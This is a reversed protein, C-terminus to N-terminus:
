NRGHVIAQVHSGTTWSISLSVASKKMQQKWRIAKKKRVRTGRRNDNWLLTMDVLCAADGKAETTSPSSAMLWSFKDQSFSSLTSACPVGCSGRCLRSWPFAWGSSICGSLLMGGSFSQSLRNDAWCRMTLCTSLFMVAKWLWMM